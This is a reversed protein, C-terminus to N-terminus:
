TTHHSNDFKLNKNDLFNEVNKSLKSELTKINLDDALIIKCNIQINTYYKM